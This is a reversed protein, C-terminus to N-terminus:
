RIKKQESPGISFREFVLQKALKPVTSKERRATEQLARWEAETVRFAVSHTKSRRKSEAGM